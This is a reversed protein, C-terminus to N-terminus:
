IRWAPHAGELKALVSLTSRKKLIGDRRRLRLRRHQRHEGDRAGSACGRMGSGTFAAQSSQGIDGHSSYDHVDQMSQTMQALHKKADGVKWTSTKIVGHKPPAGM